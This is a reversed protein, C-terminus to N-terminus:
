ILFTCLVSQSHSRPVRDPPIYREEMRIAAISEFSALTDAVFMVASSERPAPVVAALAPAGPAIQCGCQAPGGSEIGEQAGVNKMVAMMTCDTPCCASSKAQTQCPNAAFMPLPGAGLIVLLMTTVIKSLFRMGTYRSHWDKGNWDTIQIVSQLGTKSATFTPLMQECIPNRQM